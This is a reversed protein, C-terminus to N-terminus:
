ELFHPPSLNIVKLVYIVSKYKRGMRLPMAPLALQLHLRMAEHEKRKTSKTFTETSKTIFFNVVSSVFSIKCLPCLPTFAFFKEGRCQSSQAFDKHGKHNYSKEV